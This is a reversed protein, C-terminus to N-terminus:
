RTHKRGSSRCVHSDPADTARCEGRGKNSPRFLHIGRAFFAHPSFASTHRMTMALWRTARIRARHCAGRLLGDKKRQAAFHIAEDCTSRAIVATPLRAVACMKEDDRRLGPGM